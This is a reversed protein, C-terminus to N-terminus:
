VLRWTHQHPQSLWGGRPHGQCHLPFSLSVSAGRQLSSCCGCFKGPLALLSWTVAAEWWKWKRSLLTWKKGSKVQRPVLYCRNRWTEDFIFKRMGSLSKSATKDKKKKRRTKNESCHSWTLNIELLCNYFHYAQGAEANPKKSFLKQESKSMVGAGFAGKGVTWPAGFAGRPVTWPLLWLATATDTGPTTSGHAAFAPCIPLAM